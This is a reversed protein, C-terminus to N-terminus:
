EAKQKLMKYPMTMLAQQITKNCGASESSFEVMGLDQVNMKLDIKSVENMDGILDLWIHIIEVAKKFVGFEGEDSLEETNIREEQMESIDQGLIDKILSPYNTRLVKMAEHEKIEDLDNFKFKVDGQLTFLLLPLLGAM